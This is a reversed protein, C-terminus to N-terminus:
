LVPVFHSAAAGHFQCEWCCRETKCVPVKLTSHLYVFYRYYLSLLSDPVEARVEELM